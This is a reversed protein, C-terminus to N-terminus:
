WGGFGSEVCAPTLLGRKVASVRLLQSPNCGVRHLYHVLLLLLLLQGVFCGKSHALIITHNDEGVGLGKAMRKRQHLVM